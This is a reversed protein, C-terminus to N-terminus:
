GYNKIFKKVAEYLLFTSDIEEGLVTQLRVLEEISLEDEIKHCLFNVCLTHRIKLVCGTPGLFYCSKGNFRSEPLHVHALLNSFLLIADYRNEIGAGCCSGGEEQDCERCLENVGLARMLKRSVQERKIVDSLLNSILENSKIHDATKEFLNRALALKDRIKFNRHDPPLIM